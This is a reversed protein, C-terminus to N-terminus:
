LLLIIKKRWFRRTGLILGHQRNEVRNCINTCDLYIHRLSVNNKVEAKFTPLELAMNKIDEGIADNLSVLPDDFSQATAKHLLFTSIFFLSWKLSKM